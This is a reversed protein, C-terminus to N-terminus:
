RNSPMSETRIKYGVGSPFYNDGYSEMFLQRAENGSCHCPGIAKVGGAKLRSIVQRVDEIGTGTLHFGGLVMYVNQKLSAKAQNVINVVGPHACGTIVVLGNKTEVILSQEKLSIGLEGTSYIGSCIEVSTDVTVLRVGARIVMDKIQEPFSGPLYVILDKNRQWGLFEELGGCHDYHEHSITVIDISDPAIGLKQMNSLLIRGDGGTDFLVTKSTGRVFCAFGWATSLREDYNNNDYVVTMEIFKEQEKVTESNIGQPNVKSLATVATLLIFLTASM